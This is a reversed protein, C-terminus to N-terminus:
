LVALDKTAVFMQPDSARDLVFGAKVAIRQMGL